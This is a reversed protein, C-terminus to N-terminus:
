AAFGCEFDTIYESPVCSRIAELDQTKGFKFGYNDVLDWIFPTDAILKGNYNLSSQLFAPATEPKRLSITFGFTWQMSNGNVTKKKSDVVRCSADGFHKKFSTELYDPMVAHVSGSHKALWGLSHYFESAASLPRSKQTLEEFDKIEKEKRREFAAAKKEDAKAKKAEERAQADAERKAIQEARRNNDFETWNNVYEDFLNQLTETDTEDFSLLNMKTVISYALVTSKATSEFSLFLEPKGQNEGFRIKTVKGKGYMKHCGVIEVATESNMTAFVEISM